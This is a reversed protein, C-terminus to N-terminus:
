TKNIDTSLGRGQASPPHRPHHSTSHLLGCRSLGNGLHEQVPQTENAVVCNLLFVVSLFNTQHSCQHFSSDGTHKPPPFLVRRHQMTCRPGSKKERRCAPLYSGHQRKRTRVSLMPTRVSIDAPDLCPPFAEVQPFLLIKQISV